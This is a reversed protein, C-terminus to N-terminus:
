QGTDGYANDTWEKTVARSDVPGWLYSGRVFENDTFHTDGPVDFYVTWGGGGLTNGEVTIRGATGQNLSEAFMLAANVSTDQDGNKSWTGGRGPNIINNKITVNSVREFIQLGDSHAGRAPKFDHIWSDTMTFNDGVKAGDNSMGYIDAHSVTLNNYGLGSDSYDGHITVHEVTASGNGSTQIAWSQSGDGNFRCNRIVVDHVGNGILVQGTIDLGEIVQGSRATISGSRKLEVGPQVGY